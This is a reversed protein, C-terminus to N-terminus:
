RPRREYLEQRKYRGIIQVPQQRAHAIFKRWHKAREAEEVDAPGITAVVKGRSTVDFTQGLQVKRLLASFTRNAETASVKKRARM